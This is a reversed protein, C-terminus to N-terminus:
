DRRWVVAAELELELQLSCRNDQRLLLTYGGLLEVVPPFESGTRMSEEVPRDGAYVKKPTKGVRMQLESKQQLNDKM